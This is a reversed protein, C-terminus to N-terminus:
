ACVGGAGSAGPDGCALEALGNGREARRQLVDRPHETSKIEWVPRATGNYRTYKSGRNVRYGSIAILGCRRFRKVLIGVAREDLVSPDPVTGIEHLRDTFDSSQFKRGVGLSRIFGHLEDELANLAEIRATVPGLTTEPAEMQELMDDVRRTEAAREHATSLRPVRQRAREHELTRQGTAM